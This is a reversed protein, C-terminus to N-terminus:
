KEYCMFGATFGLTYRTLYCFFKMLITNKSIYGIYILISIFQPPRLQYLLLNLTLQYNRSTM